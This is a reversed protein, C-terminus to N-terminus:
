WPLGDVCLANDITDAQFFPLRVENVLPLQEPAVTRGHHHHGKVLEALRRIRIPLDTIRWVWRTVWGCVQGM